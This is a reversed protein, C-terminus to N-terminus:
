NRESDPAPVDPGCDYWDGDIHALAVPETVTMTHEFLGEILHINHSEAPVGYRRLNGLVRDM